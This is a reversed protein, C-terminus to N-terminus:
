VDASAAAATSVEGPIFRNIDFNGCLLRPRGAAATLAKPFEFSDPVGNSQLNWDAHPLCAWWSCPAYRAHPPTPASSHILSSRDLDLGLWPPGRARRGGGGGGQRYTIEFGPAAHAADATPAATPAAAAAATRVTGIGTGARTDAPPPTALRSRRGHVSPSVVSVVRGHRFAHILGLDLSTFPDYCRIAVM